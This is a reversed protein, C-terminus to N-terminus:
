NNYLAYTVDSKGFDLIAIRPKNIFAPVQEKPTQSCYVIRVQMWASAPAIPKNIPNPMTIRNASITLHKILVPRHLSQAGVIIEIIKAL